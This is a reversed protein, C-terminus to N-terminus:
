RDLVVVLWWCGVVPAWDHVWNEFVSGVQSPPLSPAFFNVQAADTSFIQPDHNLFDGFFKKGNLHNTAYDGVIIHLVIDHPTNIGYYYNRKITIGMSKSWGFCILQRSVVMGAANPDCLPAIKWWNWELAIAIPDFHEVGCQGTWDWITWICVHNLGLIHSYIFIHYIYIYM